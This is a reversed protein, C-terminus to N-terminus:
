DGFRNPIEGAKSFGPDNRERYKYNQCSTIWHPQFVGGFTAPPLYLSGLPGWLNMRMSHHSILSQVSDSARLSVVGQHFNLIGASMWLEGVPNRLQLPQSELAPREGSGLILGESMQLALPALEAGWKKSQETWSAVWLLDGLQMADTSVEAMRETDSSTVKWLNALQREMAQLSSRIKADARPGLGNLVIGAVLAGVLPDTVRPRAPLSMSLDISMRTSLTYPAKAVADGEGDGQSDLTRQLFKVGSIVVLQAALENYQPDDTAVALRNLAWAWLMSSYWVQGDGAPRNEGM